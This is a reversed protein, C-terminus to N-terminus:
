KNVIMKLEKADNETVIRVLFAGSQLDQLKIAENIEKIDEWNKRYVEDGKMNYILIILAQSKILGVKVSVGRCQPQTHYQFSRDAESLSM